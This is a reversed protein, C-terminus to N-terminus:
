HICFISFYEICFHVYKQIFSCTSEIKNITNNNNTGFKNSVEVSGTLGDVIPFKVNASVGFGTNSNYQLWVSGDLPAM